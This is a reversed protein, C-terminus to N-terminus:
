KKCAGTLASVEKLFGAASGPVNAVTGSTIQKETIDKTNYYSENAKSDVSLRTGSMSAGVYVGSNRTYTYIDSMVKAEARKNIPGASVSADTGLSFNGQLIKDVSEKNIFIFVIDSNQNGAQFGIGGGKITLFLPDRWCGDDKRVTIVGQGRMGSVGAGVKVVNPIVAVGQAKKLISDPIETTTHLVDISAQLRKEERSQAFVLGLFVMSLFFLGLPIVKNMIKNEM